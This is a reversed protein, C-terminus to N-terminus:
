VMPFRCHPVCLMDASSDLDQRNQGADSIKKGFYRSTGECSHGDLSVVSIYPGGIDELVINEKM